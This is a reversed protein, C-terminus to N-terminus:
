PQIEPLREALGAMEEISLTEARRSLDLPELELLFEDELGYFKKLLGRIQKRRERFLAKVLSRYRPWLEEAVRPEALPTLRLVRSKVAPPPFFAKPGADLVKEVGLRARLLAPLVGYERGGPEAQIREAVERQIMFVARELRDAGDVAGFLATSSLQYPLNGILKIREVGIEDAILAPPLNELGEDRFEVAALGPEARLRELLDRDIEVGIVRAGTAALPLTLAGTGCGYELVVDGPGAELSAVIKRCLNPDTLFNQGLFKKPRLPRNM